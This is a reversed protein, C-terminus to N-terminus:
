RTLEYIAKAYIKCANILNDIKIYEDAKHCMDEEDPMMAGYSVCNKFARAYTAGGISIPKENKGFHENYIRCLKQVLEDDEPIYLSNKRDKFEVKFETGEFSKLINEEM